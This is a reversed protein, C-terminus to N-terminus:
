KNKVAHGGFQGRLASVVKGVYSPNNKSQQRFEFSDKIVSVPEGMEEATKVTWEGEGTSNVSGSIEDLEIGFEEYAKQLWGVLRSEIVSGKNYIRSVEKLDLNYKSKKMINFGEGLAQMMGYEIGNHVMKVFHGAGPGEFHAYGEPLSVAKYLPELYHFSETSGGIMLCAGNRAGYPGGSVGVDVYEVGKEKLKDTRPKADKYFSNGADIVIDGKELYPSLGEESFIMQEVPDGAPLMIWIIRPKNQFASMFDKISYTGVVGQKEYEKTEESSRNYAIVRWGKEALQLAIGHGM